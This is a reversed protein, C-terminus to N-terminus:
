PECRDLELREVHACRFANESARYDWREASCTSGGPDHRLVNVSNPVRGRIRWSLATGAQVGWVRRPLTGFSPLLPRIYPLHIHGGMVIDAGAESWIRVAREHGHLLNQEDEPRIVCVPQHTVVVRLQERSARRLREAIREIQNASIEGDKHRAPRTTNACVVLF